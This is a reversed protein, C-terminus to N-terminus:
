YLPRSYHLLGLAVVLAAMLTIPTSQKASGGKMGKEFGNAEGGLFTAGVETLAGDNNFMSVSDGTWENANDTRFAGFWAYGEVLDLGDLYTMSQNLMAVTSDEDQQPLAMETIWLGLRNESSNPPNYFDDLTGIWAALGPFDGYYHVAVFDAPCGDPSLHHCSENFRKLWEIGQGSGTVVPHSINWTRPSDSSGERLPAIYQIYAEAADEPSIDSGGSAIDHDPENFTLLHTSSDPLRGLLSKLEDDSAADLGHLLPIFAVSNNVTDSPWPSWTYYWSIPSNQSSLFENDSNPADGHVALGQKSALGAKTQAPALSVIFGLHFYTSKRM